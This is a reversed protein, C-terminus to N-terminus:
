RSNINFNLFRIDCVIIFQQGNAGFLENAINTNQKLWEDRDLHDVGLNMKVFNEMLAKRVQKLYRCINFDSDVQFHSAIERQSLGTKLWFLYIALTQLKTRSDSNNMSELYGSLEIFQKKDLGLNNKCIDETITSFSEFKKFLTNRRGFYMFRCLLSEVKKSDLCTKTCFVSLLEYCEDNLNGFEDLHISCCRSNEPIYINCRILAYHIANDSITHSKRSEFLRNCIFCKKHNIVIRPLNVYIEGKEHVQRKQESNRLDINSVLNTTVVENPYQFDTLTLEAQQNLADNFEEIDSNNMVIMKKSTYALSRCLNCIQSKNELSVNFYSSVRQRVSDSKVKRFNNKEFKDGRKNCGVCRYLRSNDDGIKNEKEM